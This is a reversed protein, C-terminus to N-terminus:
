RAPLEPERLREMLILPGWTERSREVERYHVFLYTHMAEMPIRAPDSGPWISFVVAEPFDALVVWRPAAARLEALAELEDAATMMGPQLFSYRTPNRANLLPYLAPAYPFVFMTDGPQVNREFPELLRADDASGRMTGARTPFTWESLPTMAKQAAMGSAALLVGAYVGPRLRATLSRHLLLGCLAFPIACTFLLQTASWRPWTSLVLAAVAALLFVGPLAPPNNSGDRAMRRRMLFWSWGAVAILPLIAPLVNWGSWAFAILKEVLGSGAPAAASAFGLFGYPVRNAEAYNAATWRMSEMMPGFAHRSALYAAAALTVSIGGVLFGLLGRIGRWVSWVLLPVAIWVVSPTAWAAAAALAGSLIWLRRSGQRGAAFAMLIAATALAASDWRHNVVMQAPKSAFTLFVFALGTSFAAGEFQLGLWYVAWTLFGLDVAVPLRMLLINVGGWRALIGEVWFTLPGTLVFFDRYPSEGSAVRRGGEIYIGEDIGHRFSDGSLWAVYVLAFAFVGIGLYFRSREIRNNRGTLFRVELM